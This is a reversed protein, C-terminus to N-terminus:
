DLCVVLDPAQGTLAHTILAGTWPGTGTLAGATATSLIEGRSYDRSLTACTPENTAMATRLGAWLHVGASVATAMASSNGMVGTGTLDSLTGDAVLKTLTLNGGNPATTSSALAVEATQAGTGGVSVAFKVYKPTVAETTYGVYVWYATDETLALTGNSVLPSRYNRRRTNVSQAYLDDAGLATRAGAATTAGTGGGAVPLGTCNTLTGSQPTGLVPTTLTPSTARVIAGTGQAATGGLTDVMASVTADDLVTRAAATVTATEPVGTSATTRVIFADQALDAMKALTVAGNQIEATAIDSGLTGGSAIGAGAM